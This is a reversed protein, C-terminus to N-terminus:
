DSHVLYAWYDSPRLWVGRVDSSHIGSYRCVVEREGYMVNNLLGKAEGETRM